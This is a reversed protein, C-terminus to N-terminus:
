TMCAHLKKGEIQLTLTLYAGHCLAGALCALPCPWDQIKNNIITLMTEVGNLKRRNPKLNTLLQPFTPRQSGSGLFFFHFQLLCTQPPNQIASPQNMIFQSFFDRNIIQILRNFTSTYSWSSRDNTVRQHGPVTVGPKRASAMALSM